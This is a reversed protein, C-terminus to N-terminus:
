HPRLKAAALLVVQGRLESYEVAHDPAWCDVGGEGPAGAPPVEVLARRASLWLWRAVPAGAESRHVDFVLTSPQAAAPAFEERVVLFGGELPAADIVIGRRHVPKHETTARWAAAARTRYAAASAFDDAGHCCQTALELAELDDAHAALVRDAEARGEAYNGQAKLCRGADLRAVTSAPDLEAARRFARLAADLQGAGHQAEGLGIWPDASSPSIETARAFSEGAPGFEGRALRAQGLAYQGWYFRADCEVTKQFAQLRADGDLLRGYLYQYLAQDPHRARLEAYEQLVADARGTARMLSQYARHADVRDPQAAIAKRYAALAAETDKRRELARGEALPDDAHLPALPLCLALLLAYAPARSTM